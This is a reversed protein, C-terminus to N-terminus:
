VSAVVSRAESVSSEVVGFSSVESVPFEVLAGDADVPAVSEPSDIWGAVVSGAGPVVALEAGTSCAAGRDPESGDEAVDSDFACVVVDVRLVWIVVDDDTV